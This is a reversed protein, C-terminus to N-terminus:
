EAFLLAEFALKSRCGKRDHWFHKMMQTLIDNRGYFDANRGHGNIPYAPIQGGRKPVDFDSIAVQATTTPKDSRVGSAINSGKSDSSPALNFSLVNVLIKFCLQCVTQTTLLTYAQRQVYLRPMMIHLKGFLLAVNGPAEEGISKLFKVLRNYFPNGVEVLGLENHDSDARFIQGYEFWYPM